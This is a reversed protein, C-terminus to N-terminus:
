KTQAPLLDTIVEWGLEVSRDQLHKWNSDLWETCRKNTWKPRLTKIDRATWTIHYEDQMQRCKQALNLWGESVHKQSQDAYNRAKGELMDALEALENQSLM